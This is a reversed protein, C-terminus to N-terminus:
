SDRTLTLLQAVAHNTLEAIEAVLPEAADWRGEKAADELSACCASLRTAGFNAATGKLRHASRAVVDDEQRTVAMPLSEILEDCTSAFSAVLDRFFGPRGADLTWLQDIMEPDLGELAAQPQHEVAAADLPLWRQLATVLAERRLPKSLFDDMGAALCREREGAVAHATLAIIPVREAEGARIVQTAEYGDMEPLQCDMLVVDFANDLAMQVAERGDVAATVDCGFQQLMRRAVMQNVLNDEVLLVQPARGDLRLTSPQPATRAPERLLCDRVRSQRVPKTLWCVGEPLQAPRQPQRGLLVLRAKALGPEDGARAAVQRGDGDPLDTDLLVVDFSGTRWRALGDALTDALEVQVGLGELHRVMAGASPPHDEILLATRAMLAAPASHEQPADAPELLVQVYFRSGQGPQSEFGIRGGMLSTLRQSITLGLGTGGYRRTTSNDAQSFAQFLRSQAPAPIGIGTDRVALELWDTDDDSSVPRLELLIEGRETFKAANSVFNLLIQRLRHPDGLVWRPTGEAIQAALEIPRSRIRPAAMELASEALDWLDFELRELSLRGAEIKSFDLIDDIIALLSEASANATEAYERQEDDLDTEALFELMGIVGNMPTRIEHSVNAIFESKAASAEAAQQAAEQAVAHAAALSENRDLLERRQRADLRRLWEIRCASRLRVSFVLGGLVGAMFLFFCPAIWVPSWYARATVAWCMITVAYSVVVWATSMYFSGIGILLLGFNTTLFPDGILRLHATCNVLVLGAILSALAHAFRPAPPFRLCIGALLLLTAATAASVAAMPGAASPPLVVLHSATLLAYMAALGGSVPLLVGRVARALAARLEAAQAPDPRPM